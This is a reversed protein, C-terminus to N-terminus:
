HTTCSSAGFLPHSLPDRSGSEASGSSLFSVNTMIDRVRQPKRQGNSDRRQPFTILPSRGGSPPAAAAGGAM